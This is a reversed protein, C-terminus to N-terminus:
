AVRPTPFKFAVRSSLTPDPLSTEGEAYFPPGFALHYFGMCGNLGLGEVRDVLRSLDARDM